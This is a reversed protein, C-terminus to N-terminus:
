GIVGPNAFDGFLETAKKIYAAAAEEPNSFRGLRFHKGECHVEARWKGSWTEFHVGKFKSTKTQRRFRNANNQTATCLRLNSRCNNLGNGDKHDVRISRMPPSMIVRHLYHRSVNSGDTRYGRVYFIEERKEIFWKWGCLLHADEDDITFSRGNLLITLM